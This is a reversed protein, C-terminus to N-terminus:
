DATVPGLIELVWWRGASRVLHLRLQQPAVPEQARVKAGTTLREEYGSTAASLSVLVHDTQPSDDVTVGSLTTVLGAFVTGSERLYDGVEKDAAEAPSGPANVLALVELRGEGLALDRVAALASVAVEPDESHLGQALRAPLEVSPPGGPAKRTTALPDELPALNLAPAPPQNQQWVAWSGAGVLVAAAVSLGLRLSLGVAKPRGKLPRGRGERSPASRPMHKPKPQFGRTLAIRWAVVWRPTRRRARRLAQRRTLLEPIVSHHVSGSLDLAEPGASRFVATSFERASPRRQPDPDLAAELAATLAKPVDPAVLSLPPRHREVGPVAGTLCYWGVAALSYVDRQPLLERGAASGEGLAISAPDLFGQTGVDANGHPDGVRAAFGLDALLPKGEATFLINAPSVDGHVTGSGHLYDLVQAIPTLITITEGVPLRGRGSMLNALSGGAAYDMVLGYSAGPTGGVQLLEHVRVLHEHRLGSLLRLERTVEDLVTRQLAPGDPERAGFCKVAFRAGDKDRTVLWVTSSSGRGLQRSTAYGPILPLVAATTDLTEM